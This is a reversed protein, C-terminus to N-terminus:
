EGACTRVVVGSWTGRGLMLIRCQSGSGQCRLVELRDLAHTLAHCASPLSGGTVVLLNCWMLIGACWVVKPACAPQVVTLVLLM